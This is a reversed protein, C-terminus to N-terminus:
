SVLIFACSKTKALNFFFHFSSLLVSNLINSHLTRLNKTIFVTCHTQPLAKSAFPNCPHSRHPLLLTPPSLLHELVSCACGWLSQPGHLVWAPACSFLSFCPAASLLQLAGVGVGQVARERMSSVSHSRSHYWPPPSSGPTINLRPFHSFLHGLM